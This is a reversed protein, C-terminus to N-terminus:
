PEGRDTQRQGLNVGLQSWKEIIKEKPMFGTQRYLENGEGDLFLLLPIAGVGYREAAEPHEDVNVAAVRLQEPYTKSLESLVPMMQRCPGCNPSYFDLLLMNQACASLGLMSVALALAAAASRVM